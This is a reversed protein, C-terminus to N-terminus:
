RKGSIRAKIERAAKEFQERVHADREALARRNLAMLAQPDDTRALGDAAYIRM